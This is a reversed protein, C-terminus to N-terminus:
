KFNLGFNDFQLIRHYPMGAFVDPDFEGYGLATSEWGKGRAKLIKDGFISFDGDIRRRCYAHLIDM